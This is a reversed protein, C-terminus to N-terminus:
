GKRRARFQDLKQKRLDHLKTLQEENLVSKLKEQTQDHLAHLEKRLDQNPSEQKAYKRRLEKTQRATDAFIARLAPEQEPTLKLEQKLHSMRRDLIREAIRERRTPQAQSPAVFTIAALTLTAIGIIQSTTKM